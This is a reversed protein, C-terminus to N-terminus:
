PIILLIKVSNDLVSGDVYGLSNPNSAVWNKVAIDSDLEKPPRGRGSFMLKSWHTKVQRDSLKIVEKYFKIRAPSGPKQDVPKAPTDKGFTGSKGLYIRVTENATIGVASSGPHTIIAINGAGAVGSFMALVVLALLRYTKNM